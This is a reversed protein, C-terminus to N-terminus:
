AQSKRVRLVDHWQGDHEVIVQGLANPREGFCVLGALLHGDGYEFRGAVSCWPTGKGRNGPLQMNMFFSQCFGPTSLQEPWRRFIPRHADLVDALGPLLHEVVERLRETPPIAGSRGPPALVLVALRVPTGFFELQPAGHPPGSVRLQTLDISLNEQEVRVTGRRRRFLFSIVILLVVAGLAVGAAVLAPTPISKLSEFSM